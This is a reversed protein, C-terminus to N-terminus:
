MRSLQDIVAALIRRFQESSAADFLRANLPEVTHELDDVPMPFVAPPALSPGHAGPRVRTRQNRVAVSRYRIYFLRRDPDKRLELPEVPEQDDFFAPGSLVIVVNRTGDNGPKEGAGVRRSIEDWFFRRMKWQGELARVDIIGPNTDVLLKRMADWNLREVNKQEFAVRRHTLDLLAADISGNSLDIQSLVKLAPILVSM